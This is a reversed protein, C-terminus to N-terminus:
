FKAKVPTCTGYIPGGWCTPICADSLIIQGTARNIVAKFKNIKGKFEFRYNTNTTAVELTLTEAADKTVEGSATDIFLEGLHQGTCTLDVASAPSTALVAATALTAAALFSPIDRKIKSM